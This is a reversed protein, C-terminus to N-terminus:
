QFISKGTSLHKLGFTKVLQYAITGKGAGPPGILLLHLPEVVEVAEEELAVATTSHDDEDDNDDDDDDDDDNVNEVLLNNDDNIIEQKFDTISDPYVISLRLKKAGTNVEDTGKNCDISTSARDHHSVSKIDQDLCSCPINDTKTQDNSNQYTYM